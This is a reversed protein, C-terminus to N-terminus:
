AQKQLVEHDKPQARAVEDRTAASHADTSVSAVVLVPTPCHDVVTRSVSGLLLPRLRARSRRGIVVAGASETNAVHEIADATGDAAEFILPRADLGARSALRTGEAAIARADRRAATRVEEILEHRVAEVPHHVAREAAAASWVYLVIAPQGPCLTGAAKLARRAGPSGDYCVLIPRSSASM